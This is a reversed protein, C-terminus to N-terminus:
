LVELTNGSNPNKKIVKLVKEAKITGLIRISTAKSLQLVTHVKRLCKFALASSPLTWCCNLFGWASQREFLVKGSGRVPLFGALHQSFVLVRATQSQDIVKGFDYYFGGFFLSPLVQRGNPRSKNPNDTSDTSRAINEPPKRGSDLSNQCLSCRETDLEMGQLGM